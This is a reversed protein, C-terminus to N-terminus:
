YAGGRPVEGREDPCKGHTLANRDTCVTAYSWVWISDGAFTEEHLWREFKGFDQFIFRNPASAGRYLRHEVIIPGGDRLVDEILSLNQPDTIKAGETTWGDAESRWRTRMNRLRARVM